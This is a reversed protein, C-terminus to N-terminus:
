RAIRQAGLEAVLRVLLHADDGGPRRRDARLQEPACRRRERLGPATNWLQPHDHDGPRAQVGPRKRARVPKLHMAVDMLEVALEGRTLEFLWPPSDV